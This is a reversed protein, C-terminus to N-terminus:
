VEICSHRGALSGVQGWHRIVDLLRIVLGLHLVLSLTFNRERHLKSESEPNLNM